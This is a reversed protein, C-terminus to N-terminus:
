RMEEPSAKELEDRTIIDIEKFTMTIEIEVPAGTQEFFAPIGSGNYNVSFDTLVSRGIQFTYGATGIVKIYFQDPYVFEFGATDLAPHMHIKFRKIINQLINSETPNKATFKYSFQHTRFGVGNFVLALHPNVAIGRNLSVSARLGPNISTAANIAAATGAGKITGLVDQVLKSAEWRMGARIEDVISAGSLSQGIREGAPTLTGLETDSYATSYATSFNGPIPLSIAGKRFEQAAMKRKKRSYTMPKFMILQALQRLDAPFVLSEGSTESKTFEGGTRYYGTSHGSAM